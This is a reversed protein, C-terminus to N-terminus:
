PRRHLPKLWKARKMGIAGQARSCDPMHVTCDDEESDPQLVRNQSLFVTM